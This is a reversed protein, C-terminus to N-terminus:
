AWKIILDVIAGVITAVFGGIAAVVGIFWKSMGVTTELRAIRAEHGEQGNGMVKPRCENCLAINAALTEALGRISREISGLGERTEKGLEDVRQHLTRIDAAPM